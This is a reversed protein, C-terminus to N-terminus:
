MRPLFPYPFANSRLLLSSRRRHYYYRIIIIIPVRRREISRRRALRDVRSTGHLYRQFPVSPLSSPGFPHCLREAVSIIRPQSPASHFTCAMRHSRRSPRLHRSLSLLFLAALWRSCGARRPRVLFPSRQRFSCPRRRRRYILSPTPFTPKRASANLASFYTRPSLDAHRARSSGSRSASQQVHRSRPLLSSSLIISTSLLPRSVLRLSFLTTESNFFFLFFSSFPTSSPLPPLFFFRLPRANKRRRRRRPQKLM